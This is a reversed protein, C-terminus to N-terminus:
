ERTIFEDLNLLVRAVSTWAAAETVGVEAREEVLITAITKAERVTPLRGLSTQFLLNIRQRDEKSPERNIRAALATACEVFSEENLM